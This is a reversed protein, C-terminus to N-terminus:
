YLHCNNKTMIKNYNKFSLVESPNNMDIEVEQLCCVDIQENNDVSSAYDKKKLGM